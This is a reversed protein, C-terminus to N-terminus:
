AIDENFPGSSECEQVYFHDHSLGAQRYYDFWFDHLGQIRNRVSIVKDDVDPRESQPTMDFPKFIIESQDTDLM